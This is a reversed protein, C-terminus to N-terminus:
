RPFQIKGQMEVVYGAGGKRLGSPEVSYNSGASINFVGKFDRHAKEFDLNMYTAMNSYVSSGPFAFIKDDFGVCWIEAKEFARGSSVLVTKSGEQREKRSLAVGNWKQKFGAIKSFNEKVEDYDRKLDNFKELKIQQPTKPAEAPESTQEPREGRRSERSARIKASTSRLKDEMDTFKSEASQSMKSLKKIKRSQLYIFTIVAVVFLFIVIYVIYELILDSTSKKNAGVDLEDIEQRLLNIDQIKGNFLSIANNLSGIIKLINETKISDKEDIDEVSYFKGNNKKLDKNKSAKDFKSKLNKITVYAKLKVLATTTEKQKNLEDEIKEIEQYNLDNENQEKLELYKTRIESINKNFTVDLTNEVSKKIDNYNKKLTILQSNTYCHIAVTTDTKSQM